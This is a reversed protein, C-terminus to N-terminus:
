ALDGLSHVADRCILICHESIYYATNRTCLKGGHEEPLPSREEIILYYIRRGDDRYAASDGFYKATQLRKCTQMLQIMESFSYVFIGRSQTPLTFCTEETIETVGITSSSNNEIRKIFSECEGKTSIYLKVFFTEGDSKFDCKKGADRLIHRIIEVSYERCESMIDIDLSYDIMDEATLTLKMSSDNIRLIDM